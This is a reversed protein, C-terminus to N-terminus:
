KKEKAAAKETQAQKEAKDVQAQTPPNEEYVEREPLGECAHRAILKRGHQELPIEVGCAPCKITDSEPM